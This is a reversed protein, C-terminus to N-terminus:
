DDDESSMDVDYCKDLYTSIEGRMYELNFVLFSLQPNERLIDSLFSDGMRVVYYSMMLLKYCELYRDKMERLEKDKKIITDKCHKALELYENETKKAEDDSM